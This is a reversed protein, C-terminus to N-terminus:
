GGRPHGGKPNASSGPEATQGPASDEANVIPPRPYKKRLEIQKRTLRDVADGTPWGPGPPINGDIVDRFSSAFGRFEGTATNRAFAFIYDPLDPVAIGTGRMLSAVYEIKRIAEALDQETHAVWTRGVSVLERYAHVEEGTSALADPDRVLPLRRRADEFQAEAVVLDQRAVEANIQEERVRVLLDYYTTVLFLPGANQYFETRYEGRDIEAADLAADPPTSNGTIWAITAAATMSIGPIVEYPDNSNVPCMLLVPPIRLAAAVTFLEDM